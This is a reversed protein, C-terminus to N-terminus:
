DEETQAEEEPQAEEEVKIWTSLKEQAGEVGLAEVLPMLREKQDNDWSGNLIQLIRSENWNPYKNWNLIRVLGEEHSQKVVADFVEERANEHPLNLRFAISVLDLSKSIKNKENLTKTLLTLTDDSINRRVPSHRKALVLKAALDEANVEVCKEVFRHIQEQSADQGNRKYLKLLDTVRKVDNFYTLKEIAADLFARKPPQREEYHKQVFESIEKLNKESVDFEPVKQPLSSFSIKMLNLRKLSVSATRRLM